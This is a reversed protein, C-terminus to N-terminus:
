FVFLAFWSSCTVFAHMYGTYVRSFGHANAFDRTPKRQKQNVQFSSLM